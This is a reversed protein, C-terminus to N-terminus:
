EAGAHAPARERQLAPEADAATESHTGRVAAWVRRWLYAL